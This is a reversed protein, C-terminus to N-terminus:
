SAEWSNRAHVHTQTASPEWDVPAGVLRTVPWTCDGGRDLGTSWVGAMSGRRGRVQKPCFLLYARAICILFFPDLKELYEPGLPLSQVGSFHLEAVEKLLM